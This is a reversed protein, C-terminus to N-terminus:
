NALRAAGLLDWCKGAGAAYVHASGPQLLNPIPQARCALGGVPRDGSRARAHKELKRGIQYIVFVLGIGCLASFSRMGAARTGMLATWIKLVWYYGPPHIDAAALQAIQGFSHDLLAWTNGEDSWLSSADLRYFRLGGALLLIFLLPLPYPILPLHRNFPLRWKGSIGKSHVLRGSAHRSM